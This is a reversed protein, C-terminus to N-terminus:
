GEGAALAGLEARAADDLVLGGAALNDRLYAGSTTGPIVLVNPALGLAWALAVQAAPVGLRACEELVDRSSTSGPHFHRGHDRGTRSM